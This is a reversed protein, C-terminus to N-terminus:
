RWHPASYRFMATTINNGDRLCLTFNSLCRRTQKVLCISGQYGLLTVQALSHMPPLSFSFLLIVFQKLKKPELTRYVAALNLFSAIAFQATLGKIIKGSIVGLTSSKQQAKKAM